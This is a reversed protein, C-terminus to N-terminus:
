AGGVRRRGGRGMENLKMDVWQQKGRQYLEDGSLCRGAERNYANKSYLTPERRSFAHAYREPDERYLIEAEMARHVALRAKEIGAIYCCFFDASNGLSRNFSAGLSWLYNDPHDPGGNAAAIIHFVDQDKCAQRDGKQLLKRYAARSMYKLPSPDKEEMDHLEADVKVHVTEDHKEEQSEQEQTEKRYQAVFAAVIADRNMMPTGGKGWAVGKKKIGSAKALAVLDKLSFDCSKLLRAGVPDVAVCKREDTEDVDKAHDVQNEEDDDSEEQSEAELVCHGASGFVETDCRRSQELEPLQRDAPLENLQEAASVESARGRTAAVTAATDVVAKRSAVLAAPTAACDGLGAARAVIGLARKDFTREVLAALIPERKCEPTGDKGWNVGKRKIGLDEARGKAESLPLDLLNALEQVLQNEVDADYAAEVSM